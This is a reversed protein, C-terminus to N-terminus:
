CIIVKKVILKDRLEIQIYYVGIELSSFDFTKITTRGTPKIKELFLVMSISNSLTLEYEDVINVTELSFIGNSPNPFLKVLSNYHSDNISSECSDFVVIAYDEIYCDEAYVVVISVTDPETVEFTIEGPISSGSWYYQTEDNGNFTSADLIVPEGWCGEFTAGQFGYYYNTDNEFIWGPPPNNPDPLATSNAGAYFNLTESEVGVTWINLFDCSVDANGYDKKLYALETPDTSKININCCQNGRLYISDNITQTTGSQFYLWSGSYDYCPMLLLTDFTNNGLFYTDNLFKSYEIYNSGSLTFPGYSIFRKIYQGEPLTFQNANVILNSIEAEGEVSCDDGNIIVSDAIFNEGITCYVGDLHISQYIVLNDSNNISSAAGKAYISGYELEGGNKNQYSAQDGELYIFSNKALLELNEADILWADENEKYLKIISNQINLVRTSQYDSLIAGCYVQKSNTNLNGKLLYISGMGNLYNNTDLLLDDMLIWEGGEGNFWIDNIFQNGNMEITNVPQTSIFDVEGTFTNIVNQHFKLSSNISLISSESVGALVVNFPINEWIMSNCAPNLIDIFVTDLQQEFSNENFIVNDLVSPLVAPIFGNELRWSNLSSWNGQGGDWYYDEQSLVTNSLLFLFLFYSLYKM